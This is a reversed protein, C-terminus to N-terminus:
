EESKLGVKEKSRMKRKKKLREWKIKLDDRREERKEIFIEREVSGEIWSIQEKGKVKVERDEKHREREREMMCVYM